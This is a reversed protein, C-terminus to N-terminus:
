KRKGDNEKTQELQLPIFIKQPLETSPKLGVKSARTAAESYKTASILRTKAAINESKLLLINQKTKELAFRKKDGRYSNYIYIIFLGSIFLIFPVNKRINESALFKGSLFYKISFHREAQPQQNTEEGQHKLVNFFYKRKSM